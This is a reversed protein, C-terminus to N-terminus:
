ASLSIKVFREGCYKVINKFLSESGDVYRNLKYMQKGIQILLPINGSYDRVIEDIDKFQCVDYVKIYIKKIKKNKIEELIKGLNNEGIGKCRGWFIDGWTNDEIIPDSIKKLSYFLTPNQSFKEILIEKMVGIKIEEWDKRIEVKKGLKKADFGNLKEFEKEREKCKQAQFASEVCKYTKGKYLIECPFMNSLFFYEERFIM